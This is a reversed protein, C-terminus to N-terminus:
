KSLSEALKVASYADHSYHAGFSEAFHKDLVAGGVMMKSDLGAEKSLSMVHPMQNMTTTMLASLAIIGANNAKAAEIIRDAEVDKGLDIVQFGYNKLLLAVINKGIDHVDGKVTAIVITGKNEAKADTDKMLEPTLVDMAKEMAEAGRILQPLFYQKSEYLDGVKQIAPILEEDIISKASRGGALAQKALEVATDKAGNIIAEYLTKHELQPGKPAKETTKTQDAYVRIYSMANKDRASLVDAARVGHRMQENNPNMIATSLGSAIAMSLFSANVHERAPLGFSVNSLGVVTNVKFRKECWSITKLTELAANANSAVTMVVGDVLIDEKTFGLKQAEYYVQKIVEIRDEATEPVGHDDVPLLVFMAGYKKALPLFRKIKDAEGSISNIVARGPYIRLAAELADANSTDILLPASVANCAANVMAVLTEKENIGPVGANVDLLAAGAEVQERALDAVTDMDGKLLAEKLAKKGTPNLREGIVTFPLTPHIRVTERNSCALSYSLRKTEIPQMQAAITSAKQIYEPNTGCCGGLLNVGAQILAETYSAFQDADMDFVTKGNELRPKGANPEAILPVKAYPKMQAIIGVMEAPGSSCNCGVADAGLSQLTTLASLPDTGMLTRSGGEYTMTVMVPLDCLEKIAILAARAEQIDLMTEIVFLDVGGALLGKIQAKFSEVAEEFGVSGFPELLSGCSSIDGAVLAEKGAADKAIEALKKNLEYTEDSLGFEALKIANGGLTFTYIIQTGAEIYRRHAAKVIHGNESGWKEPCAGVPMGYKQMQTGMAGDLIVIRNQIFKKFAKKTM